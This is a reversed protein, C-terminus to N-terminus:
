SGAKYEVDIFLAVSNPGEALGASYGTGGTALEVDLLSGDHFENAATIATASLRIPKDAAGDMDTYAVTLVGGTVDTGDIELNLAQSGAGYSADFGDTTAFFNKIQGHGWLVYSTMLNTASTGELARTDVSGLYITRKCGGALALVAGHALGFLMLDVTTSTRWFLLLGVARAYAAPRTLTFTNEDTMYVVKGNDAASAAGTVTISQLIDNALRLPIKLTGDGVVKKDAYGVFMQNTADNYNTVTGTGLVLGVMAGKYITAGSLVVFEGYSVANALPKFNNSATLAM